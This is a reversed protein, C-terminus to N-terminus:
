KPLYPRGRVFIALRRFWLCASPSENSAIAEFDPSTLVFVHAIQRQEPVRVEHHAHVTLNSAELAADVAALTDEYPGSTRNILEFIGYEDNASSAIGSLLCLLTTAALKPLYRQFTTM